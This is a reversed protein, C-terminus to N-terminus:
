EITFFKELFGISYGTNESLKKAYFKTMSDEGTMSRYVYKQTVGLISAIRKITDKDLNFKIPNILSNYDYVISEVNGPECWGTRVFLDSFEVNLVSAIKVLTSIGFNYKGNLGSSLNPQSMGILESLHSITMGREKLIDKIRYRLIDKEM